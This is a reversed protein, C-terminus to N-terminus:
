VQFVPLLSPVYSDSKSCFLNVQFVVILSPVCCPSKSCLSYVQLMTKLSLVWAISKFCLEYVQFMVLLSSICANIIQKSKHVITNLYELFFLSNKSFKSKVKLEFSYDKLIIEFSM